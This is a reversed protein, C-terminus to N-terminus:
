VPQAPSPTSLVRLLLDVLGKPDFPKELFATAAREAAVQSVRRGFYSPHGSCVIVKAAPDIKRIAKMTEFGDQGPMWVDVISVDPRHTQFHSLANISSTVGAVAHGMPELIRGMFTLILPDDDILLIKAM